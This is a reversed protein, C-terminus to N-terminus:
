CSAGGGYDGLSRYRVGFREGEEFEEWPVDDISFPQFVGDANESSVRNTMGDSM